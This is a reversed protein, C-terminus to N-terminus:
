VRTDGGGPRHYRKLCGSPDERSLPETLTISRMRNLKDMQKKSEREMSMKQGQQNRYLNFFYLGIIIGFFVQILLVADTM